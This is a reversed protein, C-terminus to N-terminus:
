DHNNMQKKLVQVENTLAIRAEQERILHLTLEEVKELLKRNMEGLSIGEAAVQEKNPMGPLHKHKKIFAETETLSPMQYDEEFVYDPWNATEVKIEKARINGNVSLKEAPTLTGIGVKDHVILLKAQWNATASNANASTFFTAWSTWGQNNYKGMRIQPAVGGFTSSYPIYLQFAGGDQSSTYGGGALVTGYSPFGQGNSVFSLQLKTSFSKPEDNTNWVYSGLSNIATQAMIDMCGFILLSLLLAKKM